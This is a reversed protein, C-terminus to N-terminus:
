ARPSRDHWLADRRTKSAALLRALRERDNAEVADGVASLSDTFTSTARLV